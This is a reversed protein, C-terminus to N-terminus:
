RLQELVPLKKPLQAVVRGLVLTDETATDIVAQIALDNVSANIQPMPDSKM